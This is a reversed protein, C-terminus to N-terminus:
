YGMMRHWPAGAPDWKGRKCHYHGMHGIFKHPRKLRNHHEPWLNPIGMERFLVLTLVKATNIQEPYYGLLTHKRGNTVARIIPRVGFGHKTYWKNYKLYVANSFDIAVAAKNVSRVGANLTYVDGFDLFQYFIGDNDICGHTSARRKKNNLIRCCHGASLTADWHWVVQSAAKKRPRYHGAGYLSLGAPELYNRVPFPVDVPKGSIILKGFFDKPEVAAHYSVLRRFTTPGVKGDPKLGHARQLARVRIVVAAPSADKPLM